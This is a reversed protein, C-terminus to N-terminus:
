TLKGSHFKVTGIQKLVFITTYIYEYVCIYPCDITTRCSIARLFIIYGNEMSTSEAELIFLLNSREWSRAYYIYRQPKGPDQHHQSQLPLVAREGHYHGTNGDAFKFIM